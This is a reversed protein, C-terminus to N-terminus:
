PGGFLYKVAATIGAAVGASLVWLVVNLKAAMASLQRVLGSDASGDGNIARDLERVREQLASIEAKIKEIEKAAHPDTCM